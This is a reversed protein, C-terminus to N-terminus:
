DAYHAECCMLGFSKLCVNNEKKIMGRASIEVSFQSVIFDCSLDAVLSVDETLFM